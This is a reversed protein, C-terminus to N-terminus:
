KGNQKIQEIQKEVNKPPIGNPFYKKQMQFVAQRTVGCLEAVKKANWGKERAEMLHERTVKPM